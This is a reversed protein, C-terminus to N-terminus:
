FQRPRMARRLDFRAASQGELWNSLPNGMRTSEGTM